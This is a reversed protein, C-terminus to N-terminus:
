RYQTNKLDSLLEDAMAADLNKLIEYQELAAEKEGLQVFWMGLIGHVLSCDPDIRFAEKLADAAEQFRQLALFAGALICYSDAYDPAIKIAQECAAIALDFNKLATYASGLGFYAQGHGPSIEIARKYSEIAREFEKLGSYADGLGCFSDASDPEIELGKKFAEAAKDHENLAAYVRGLAIYVEVHRHDVMIAKEFAQIAKEWHGKMAYDIGKNYYTGAQDLNVPIAKGYKDLTSCNSCVFVLNGETNMMYFKDVQEEVLEKGCHDCRQEIDKRKWYKMQRPLIDGTLLEGIYHLESLAIENEPEYKLSEVLCEQAQEFQKLEILIIGKGRLARARNLSSIWPRVLLARDLCSLAEDHRNMKSYAVSMEILILPQDPELRLSAEFHALAKEYRGEEIDIFGLYFYARPYARLLFVAPRKEGQSEFWTIYQLFEISNWFKIFLEGDVEYSYIYKEPTHSVVHELIVRATVLDGQNIAALAQNTKEADEQELTDVNSLM